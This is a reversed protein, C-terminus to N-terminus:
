SDVSSANDTVGCMAARMETPTRGTWRKFVHTFASVEQYGVLWAIESISLDKDRIHRKALDSRLEDLIKGLTLGRAALGRALSRQSMGLTRAVAAVTVKGHPLLPAIANEVGSRLDGSTTPRRALAEECYAVLLNNLYPDAGVVTLDKIAPAFAVEDVAAGLEVDCGFFRNLESCDGERRHTMQVRLPLLRRGTLERCARTLVTMWFEIQHRDSHRAVGVYRFLVAVDNREYCKLSIGDNVTTSYRAVRQLAEHLMASSALVYYVLGIERLDFSQALHFGLFEDELASSALEVFRIQSRVPLRSARDEAQRVTLGAKQLLPELAIGAERARACALRTIAGPTTPVQDLRQADVGRATHEM